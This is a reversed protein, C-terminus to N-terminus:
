PYAITVTYTESGIFAPNTYVYIYYWGPAGAYTIQYPSTVDFGVRHNADAIQYFLQLQTGGGPSSMAIDLTGETQLYVSYYDREDNHVGRYTQGSKLPGNAQLYINNPETEWEAAYYNVADKLVAPLFVRYPIQFAGEAAFSSGLFSTDIAQVSWYYKRGIPLNHLTFTRAQYVNGLAPLLRVGTGPLAMPAIIDSGGPQTGVRLNYSLGSLLTHDDTVPPSWSLTANSDTIIAALNAPPDPPTSSPLTSYRYIRTLPAAGFDRGTLLVDLNGNTEYDGWAVTGSTLPPGIDIGSAFTGTIENRYVRAFGSTAVLADLYGDTDYDGWAASTWSPSGVLAQDKVFTGQDNRYIEAIYVPGDKTGELLLDLDGDNDYDGWAAASDRLAPLVTSVAALMGFGTNHYLSTFPANGTTSGTLLLDALGDGDFDGWAATGDQIGPLVLGSDTFIGQENRYLKTIPQSGDNGALLLDLQGDANYDGWAVASHKVGALNVDDTSFTCAGGSRQNRYLRSIPVGDSEGSLAVDLWGDNDFDGWAAAGRVVNSFSAAHTFGSAQRQYVRAISLTSSVQGALLVDLAGDNNCDGWIAFGNEVGPLDVRTDIFSGNESALNDIPETYTIALFSDAVAAPEAATAAPLAATMAALGMLACACALLCRICFSRHLAM